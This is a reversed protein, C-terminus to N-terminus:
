TVLTKSYITKKTDSLTAERCVLGGPRASYASFFILGRAKFSESNHGNTNRISM